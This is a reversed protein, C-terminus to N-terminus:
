DKVEVVLVELPKDSLNIESHKTAGGWAVDGAKHQSTETKGDPTTMSSHQDMLYVMVRNLMHQHLPVHRHPQMTVHMVRVQSNELVLKYTQPDVKLPDLTASVKEGPDGAKKIEVEIMTVPANSTIESTHTGGAPSWRAEGAKWELNEAQGGAPTIRESGPQLYVIVRNREHRHPQSAVHPQDVARLVRVQENELLVESAAAALGAAVM